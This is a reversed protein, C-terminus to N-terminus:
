AATAALSARPALPYPPRRGGRCSLPGQPRSRLPGGDCGQGPRQAQRRRHCRPRLGSDPCSTRHCGNHSSTEVGAEVPPSQWPQPQPVAALFRQRPWVGAVGSPLKVLYVQVYRSGFLRILAKDPLDTVTWCSSRPCPALGLAIHGCHPPPVSNATM